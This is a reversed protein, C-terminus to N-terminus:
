RAGGEVEGRLVAHVRALAFSVGAYFAVDPTPYEDALNPPAGIRSTGLAGVDGIVGTLRVVEALLRDAVRMAALARPNYPLDPGDIGNDALAARAEDIDLPEISKTIM